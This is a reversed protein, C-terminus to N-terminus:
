VFTSFSSFTNTNEFGWPAFVWRAMVQSLMFLKDLTWTQKCAMAPFHNKHPAPLIQHLKLNSATNTAVCSCNWASGAPPFLHPFLCCLFEYSVWKRGWLTCLLCWFFLAVPCYDFMVVELHFCFNSFNMVPDSEKECNCCKTRCLTTKSASKSCVPAYFIPNLQFTCAFSVISLFDLLHM